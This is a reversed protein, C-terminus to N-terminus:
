FQGIAHRGASGGREANQRTGIFIGPPSFLFIITLIPTFWIGPERWSFSQRTAVRFPIAVHGDFDM